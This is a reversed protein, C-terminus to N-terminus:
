RPRLDREHDLERRHDQELSGLGDTDRLMGYLEDEPSRHELPTLVIHDEVLEITLEAGPELGLAQRM